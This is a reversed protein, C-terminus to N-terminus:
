IASQIQRMEKSKGKFLVFGGFLLEEATKNRLINVVCVMNIDSVAANDLLGTTRDKRVRGFDNLEAANLVNREALIGQNVMEAM